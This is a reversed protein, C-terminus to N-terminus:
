AGRTCREQIEARLRCARTRCCESSLRFTRGREKPSGPLTVILTGNRVGAVPRSMMAFPTVSLSAALMGHVIGSAQKHLVASVAEPTHDDVAFGTGGTTLVLNIKPEPADAWLLLQRQIQPVSDPIIKVRHRDM